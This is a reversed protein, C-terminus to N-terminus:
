FEEQTALKKLALRVSDHGTITENAKAASEFLLSPMTSTNNLIRMMGLLERKRDSGLCAQVIIREMPEWKRDFTIYVHKNGSKSTTLQTLKYGEHKDKLIKLGANLHKIDAPTDLDIQVENPGPPIIDLGLEKAKSSAKESDDEYELPAESEGTIELPDLELDLDMKGVLVCDATTKVKVAKKKGNKAPKYDKQVYEPGGGPWAHPGDHDPELTCSWDYTNGPIKFGIDCQKDNAM